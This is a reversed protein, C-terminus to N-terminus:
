EFRGCTMLAPHVKALEEAGDALTSMTSGAGDSGREGAFTLYGSIVQEAGKLFHEKASDACPHLKLSRTDRAITQMNQLPTSLAIRGTVEAVRMVDYFKRAADKLATSSERKVQQDHYRYWVFVGTAIILTIALPVVLALLFRKPGATSRQPEASSISGSPKHQVSDVKAYIAGCKPCAELQSGDSNVNETGCKKCNRIM